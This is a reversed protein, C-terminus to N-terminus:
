SYVSPNWLWVARFLTAHWLNQQWAWDKYSSSTINISM